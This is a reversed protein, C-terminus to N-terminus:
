GSLKLPIEKMFKLIVNVRNDSLNVVKTQIRASIRGSNRYTEEISKLDNELSEPTFVFRPKITLLKSLRQDTFKRNGEFSVINVTPYEEVEIILSNDRRKFKVSRFLKTNVINKYAENLDEDSFFAGERLKSYNTVASNSIRKNGEVSISNLEFTQANLEVAENSFLSCSCIFLLVFLFRAM